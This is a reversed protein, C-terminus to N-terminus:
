IFRLHTQTNKHCSYPPFKQIETEFSHLFRLMLLSWVGSATLYFGRSFVDFSLSFIVRVSVSVFLSLAFRDFILSRILLSHFKMLNPIKNENELDLCRFFPTWLCLLISLRPCLSIHFPTKPIHTYIGCQIVDYSSSRRLWRVLICHLGICEM